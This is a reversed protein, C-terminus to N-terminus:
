EKMLGYVMEFWSASHAEATLVLTDKIPFYVKIPGNIKSFLQFDDMIPLLFERMKGLIEVRFPNCIEDIMPHDFVEKLETPLSEVDFTEFNLKYSKFFNLMAKAMEPEPVPAFQTGMDFARELFALSMKMNLSGSAGNMMMYLANKRAQILEFPTKNASLKFELSVSGDLVDQFGGVFPSIEDVPDQRSFVVEDGVRKVTPKIINEKAAQFSEAAGEETLVSLGKFNEIFDKLEEADESPIVIVPKNDYDEGYKGQLEALVKNSATPGTEIKFFGKHGCGNEVFDGIKFSIDIEKNDSM